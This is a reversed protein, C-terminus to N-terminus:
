FFFSSWSDGIKPGFNEELVQSQFIRIETKGKETSREPKEFRSSRSLSPSPSITKSIAFTSLNGCTRLSPRISAVKAETLFIAPCIEGLQKGVPSRRRQSEGRHGPRYEDPEQLSISRRDFANNLPPPPRLSSPNHSATSRPPLNSRMLHVRPNISRTIPAPFLNGNSSSHM